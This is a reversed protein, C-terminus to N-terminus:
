EAGMSRHLRIWRYGYGNLEFMAPNPRPDGYDGDGFVEVPAVPLDGLEDALDVECRQDGLNTLALMAGTPADYRLALVSRQGSDVRKWQGVAFEPCERLTRLAREMWGLLSGPDRRQAAVIVAPYGFQGGDIVPRCLDKAAATSFGANAADSWQMPTRVANREELSLDDGMGIEEGYRVVPTGPLTFQLSYAMEIRRRDGGLMPALRRRIGRGYAQMEPEPGFERFVEDREVDTLRGLDIEDHNRLFTAWQCSDPIPPTMALGTLVPGADGRALGLFVQQNLLFNFLMPLRNGDGFYETLEQPEANAEALVLTDGRRWAMLERLQRLYDFDKPPDPNGPESLEIVFPAADMRFGAVGVQLWFAAIKEVEARVRPNTANLEPEFDYFRHYYWAKAKRDYTWTSTQVGPFVMGQTSDSPREDSWVYYDRFPSEPDSRAAQFWPHQDSTHNVVLDIIVRLGRNGAQHVLEVFDGLNGLRPDVGYFDSVDYGDDRNPTPHIPNLWLCTVGLRALYDLRSILGPLDGVGDGNSDQFTEVDLCYVVAEKYWREGM